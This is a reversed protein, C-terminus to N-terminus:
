PQVRDRLGQAALGPGADHAALGPGADIEGPM